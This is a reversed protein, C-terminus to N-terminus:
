QGLQQERRALVHAAPLGVLPQHHSSLWRLGSIQGLCWVELVRCSERDAQSEVGGTGHQHEAESIVSIEHQCHATQGVATFRNRYLWGHM